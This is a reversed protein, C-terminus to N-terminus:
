VCLGLANAALGCAQLVYRPLAAGLCHILPAGEERTPGERDTIPILAVETDTGADALEQLAGAQGGAQRIILCM